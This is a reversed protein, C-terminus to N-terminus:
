RSETSHEPVGVTPGEVDTIRWEHGCGKGASDDVCRHWRHPRTVWENEDLHLKKCSPCHTVVPTPTM